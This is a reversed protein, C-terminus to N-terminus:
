HHFRLRMLMGGFPISGFPSGRVAMARNFYEFNVCYIFDPSFSQSLSEYARAFNAYQRLQYAASGIMGSGTSFTVDSLSISTQLGHCSGLVEQTAPHPLSAGSTVLHVSWGRRLAQSAIHRVYIMHHGGGNPEFIALRM